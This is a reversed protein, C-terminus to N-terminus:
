NVTVQQRNIYLRLLQIKPNSRHQIEIKTCARRKRCGRASLTMELLVVQPVLLSKRVM